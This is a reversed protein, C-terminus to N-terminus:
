YEVDNGNALIQVWIPGRVFEIESGSKDTFITRSTRTSKKWKAETVNGNQFVLAEGSGTTEYLMHKLDDVPGIEKTFLLVVNKAFLQKDTELDKHPEGGTSRYYENSTKDYKWDVKFEDYGDWFYFGISDVDGRSVEVAEDQFEWPSFNDSWEVGELDLNTWGREEGEEWLGETSGVVSHETSVRHGLRTENRIYTPAGVAFQDLDNGKSYRWEYRALQEIAQARRDTKCPGGPDASCNAGGVHGFLPTEGYESAWDIFYTRVSRVPAVKVEDRQADCYYVPMFRTVGGEAVAEYVIDARIIGSHPRAEPSNEVMIALPRRKEWAEKEIKTYMMGNLPCEQDKPAGPEISLLGNFGGEAEPSTAPSNPSGLYNFTAFSIGTSLLYLILAAVITKSNKM